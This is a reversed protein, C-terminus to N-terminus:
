PLLWHRKMEDEDGQTITHWIKEEETRRICFTTSSSKLRKIEHSKKWILTLLTFLRWRIGATVSSSSGGTCWQALSDNWDCRRQTQGLLVSNARSTLESMISLLLFKEQNQKTRPNKDTVGKENVNGGSKVRPRHWALMWSLGWLLPSNGQRDAASESSDWRSPLTGGLLLRGTEGAEYNQLNARREIIANLCTLLTLVQQKPEDGSCLGLPEYTSLHFDPHCYAQWNPNPNFIPATLRSLWLALLALSSCFSM